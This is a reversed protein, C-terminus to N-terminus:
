VQDLKLAGAKRSTESEADWPQGCSRLVRWRDEPTKKYFGSVESRKVAAGRTPSAQGAMFADRPPERRSAPGATRASRSEPRSRRAATQASAVRVRPPLNARPHRRNLRRRHRCTRRIDM